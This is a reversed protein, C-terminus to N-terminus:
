PQLSVRFSNWLADPLPPTCTPKQSPNKPALAELDRQINRGYMEIKYSAKAQQAVDFAQLHLDLAQCLLAKDNNRKKALSNLAGGLNNQTAAWQLPVRERTYELLAQRYVEVAEELTKTGSEREGLISLAIGLNNQTTAWQLPVRERMQVELAERYLVVADRLKADDGESEGLIQLVNARSMRMAAWQEPHAEKDFDKAAEKFSAEAKELVARDGKQEGYRWQANGLAWRIDGLKKGGFAERLKASGLLAQAKQMFPKLQEAMYSGGNVDLGSSETLVVLHLVAGVDKALAQPMEINQGLPYRGGGGQERRGTLHVVPVREAGRALVQGWVLVSAGSEELWKRAEEHGQMTNWDPDAGKPKELIRKTTLIQFSKINAAEGTRAGGFVQANLEMFGQVLGTTTDGEGDKNQDEDGEFGTVLIAFRGEAAKPLPDQVSSCSNCGPLAAGMVVTLGLLWATGLARLARMRRM